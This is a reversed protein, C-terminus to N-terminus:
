ADMIRIDLVPHTENLGAADDSGVDFGQRRLTLRYEHHASILMHAIHLNRDLEIQRDTGDLLMDLQGKLVQAM